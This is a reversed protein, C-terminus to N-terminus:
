AVLGDIPVGVNRPREAQEAFIPRSELAALKSM